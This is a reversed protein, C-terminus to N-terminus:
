GGAPGLALEEGVHAVLNARGHVADDAHGLQGEIGVQRRALTLVEAEDLARGIRQKVTMLSM